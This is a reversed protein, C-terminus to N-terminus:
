RPLLEAIEEWEVATQRGADFQRSLEAQRIAASTGTFACQLDYIRIGQEVTLPLGGQQGDRHTTETTWLTPPLDAPREAWDYVPFGDRPYAAEFLDPEPPDAMWEASM